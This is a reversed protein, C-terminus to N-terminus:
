PASPFPIDRFWRYGANGSNLGIETEEYVYGKNRIARELYWWWFVFQYSHLPRRKAGRWAIYNLSSCRIVCSSQLLLYKIENKTLLIIESMIFVIYRVCLSFCSNISFYIVCNYHHFVLFSFGINETFLIFSSSSAVIIIKNIKSDAWCIEPLRKAM